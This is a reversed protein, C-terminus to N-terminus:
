SKECVVEEEQAFRAAVMYGISAAINDLSMRLDVLTGDEAGNKEASILITTCDKLRQYKRQFDEDEILNM